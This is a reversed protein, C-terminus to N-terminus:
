ARTRRKRRIGDALKLPATVIRGARWTLTARLRGALEQMERTHREVEASQETMLQAIRAELEHVAQFRDREIQEKELRLRDIASAKAKGDLESHLARNESELRMIRAHAGALQDRLDLETATVGPRLHPQITTAREGAM